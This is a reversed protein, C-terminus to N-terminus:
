RGAIQIAEVILFQLLEGGFDALREAGNDFGSWRVERRVQADNFERNRQVLHEVEFFVAEDPVGPVLDIRVLQQGTAKRLEIRDAFAAPQHPIGIRFLAVEVEKHGAM